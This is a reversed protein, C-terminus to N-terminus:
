TTAIVASGARPSRCDPKVICPVGELGKRGLRTSIKALRIREPNTLRGPGEIKSKLIENEPALYENRLLLGQDVLAVLVSMMGNSMKNPETTPLARCVIAAYDTYRSSKPLAM